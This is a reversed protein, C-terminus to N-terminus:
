SPSTLTGLSAKSEYDSRSSDCDGSMHEVGLERELDRLDGAVLTVEQLPYYGCRVKLYGDVALWLSNFSRAPICVCVRIQNDEGTIESIYGHVMQGGFDAVVARQNISPRIVKEVTSNVM